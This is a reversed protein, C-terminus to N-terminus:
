QEKYDLYLKMISTFVEEKQKSSLEKSEFLLKAKEILDVCSNITDAFLFYSMEVQFYTCLKDLQKLNLNRRGKELNSIQGRSLDLVKALDDQKLNRRKRLLKVKEGLESYMTDGESKIM